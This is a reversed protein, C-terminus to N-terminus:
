RHYGFQHRRDKGGETPEAICRGAPRFPLEGGQAQFELVLDCLAANFPGRAPGGSGADPALGFERYYPALRQRWRSEREADPEPQRHTFFNVSFPRGTGQRVIQLEGRLSESTAMAGAVSGLGGADSVAVTMAPLTFGAMPAQVIPHDIGFLDLLRRDPWKM